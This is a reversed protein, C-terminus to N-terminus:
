YLHGPQTRTSGWRLVFCLQSSTYLPWPLAASAHFLWCGARWKKMFARVQGTPFIHWPKAESYFLLEKGMGQRRGRCDQSFCIFAMQLIHKVQKVWSLVEQWMSWVRLNLSKRLYSVFTVSNSSLNWSAIHFWICTIYAMDQAKHKKLLTRVVAEPLEAAM